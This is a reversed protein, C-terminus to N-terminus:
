KVKYSAHNLINIDDFNFDCTKGYTGMVFDCTHTFNNVFNDRHHFM